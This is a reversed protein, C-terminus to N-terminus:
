ERVFEECGLLLVHGVRVVQRTYGCGLLWGIYELPQFLHSDSSGCTGRLHHPSVEFVSVIIVQDDDLPELM